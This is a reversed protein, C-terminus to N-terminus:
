EDPVSAFFRVGELLGRVACNRANRSPGPAVDDEPHGGIRSLCVDRCFSERRGLAPALYRPDGHLSRGVRREGVHRCTGLALRERDVDPDIALLGLRASQFRASFVAVTLLARRSLRHVRERLREDLDPGVNGQYARRLGEALRPDAPPNSAVDWRPDLGTLVSSRLHEVPVQRGFDQYWVQLSYPTPADQDNEARVGELLREALPRHVTAVPHGMPTRHPVDQEYLTWSSGTEHLSFRLALM